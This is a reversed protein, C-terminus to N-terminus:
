SENNGPNHILLKVDRWIEQKSFVLLYYMEVKTWTKATEEEFIDEIKSRYKSSCVNINTKLYALTGPKFSQMKFILISFLIRDHENHDDCNHNAETLLLGLFVLVLHLFFAKVM